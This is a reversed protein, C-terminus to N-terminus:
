SVTKRESLNGHVNRDNASQLGTTQASDSQRTNGQEDLLPIRDISNSKKHGTADGDVPIAPPTLVSMGDVDKSQGLSAPSNQWKAVDKKMQELEKQFQKGFIDMYYNAGNWISWTFVVVLFGASCWRYWFWLPCPLITLLAYFYQIVMFAPEQLPEPLSLVFKGIWTKSYSRRLWTFSTPRGAAIQDARRVSIFFHYSFQWIAYPVSAWLLMSWLSYHEPATPPSYKINFVAPFRDHQIHSPTLHVMCHLTVPPMVHIFLSTVKDLSHFVLSNRWMVIAVANNGFALCYAAIFLRKSSPAIWISLFLLLNVFYCLDAVFYHQGKKRYTVLRIPMFYLLQATYWHYFYEPVAGILYGSIFVNLVASIFSVKEKASISAVESWRKSLDDTSKKVRSRYKALQEDSSPVRKRWEKVARDRANRRSAEFKHRQEQLTHQLKELRSPLSLNEFIDFFTLKDAPTEWDEQLSQSGLFSNNRSLLLPGPTLLPTFPEAPMDNATDASHSVEDLGTPESKSKPINVPESM